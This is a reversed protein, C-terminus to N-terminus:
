QTQDRDHVELAALIDEGLATTTMARGREARHFLRGGLERELRNIQTILTSQSTGLARAAATLTPHVTAAAFRRLRQWGGPERVAPQLNIPVYRAEITTGLAAAHSAGGRARMTIAHTKAWRAMNATSVGKERALEPLPRQNNVYQDFLWARDIVVATKGGSERLSIDYDAALRALAKRDVGLQEAIVRLGRRQHVYLDIFAGRDLAARAARYAPSRARTRDVAAPAPHIQLVYRVCDLTTGLAAAAQGLSNGRHRLLDHLADIDVAVPSPGPLTLDGVLDASPAWRVPEGRVGQEALFDAGYDDIARVLEPTLHQPFDSIKTRHESVGPVTGDLASMGSLQEFLYGRAIQARSATAGPTGTIRCIRRWVADPLLDSYDLQRRRHYDIPTDHEALYDAMRALVSRVGRQDDDRTLLQLVRSIAGGNLPASLLEAAEGLRVRTGVVLLAASAAPRVQRQYAGPVTLPLSWAPWLMTPTRRVLLQARAQGPAPRSPLPMTTRYRLQDTPKLLPALAALQAAVLVPSIRNGWGINTASVALGRERHADVLYRLARGATFADPTNLIAVAATVGVAATVAKEPAAMGPRLRPRESTQSIPRRTSKRYLALLDGPLATDLDTDSAYSLVRGAVARLDSLIAIIPQPCLGYLGFSGTRSDIVQEM